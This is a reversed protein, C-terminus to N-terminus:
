QALWLLSGILELAVARNVQTTHPREGMLWTAYHEANRNWLDYPATRGASQKALWQLQHYCEVPAAKEPKVAPGSRSTM